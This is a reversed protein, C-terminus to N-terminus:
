KSTLGIHSLVARAIAEAERFSLGHASAGIADTARRALADLDLTPSLAAIEAEIVAAVVAPYGLRVKGDALAERGLAALEEGYKKAAQFAEELAVRRAVAVQQQAIALEAACQQMGKIADSEVREAETLEVRLAEREKELEAVRATLTRLADSAGQATKALDDWFAAKGPKDRMMEDNGASRFWAAAQSLGAILRPDIRDALPTM